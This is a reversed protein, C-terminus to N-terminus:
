EDSGKRKLAQYLKVSTYVCALVLSLLRIMTEFDTLSITIAALNVGAVQVIDAIHDHDNM